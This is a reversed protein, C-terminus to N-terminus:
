RTKMDLLLKKFEPDGRLSELQKDSELIEADKLGRRVAERLDKLAQKKNGLAVRTEALLLVPWPEDMVQRMLDFCSEAKGFHHLQFEQQGNEIGEVKMDDFARAFVAQRAEDKAHAAQNKLGAMAQQIEIRLSNLDSVNGSQYARLKPSIEREIKFQESIQAQEDKLASKLAASQKLASMKASATSTNKLGAFDSTLSRYAEYTASVDNRAAADEAENEMRQFQQDVFKPDPPIVASQMAKLTIWQIADDMVKPPAWQHTGNYQRLRYPLGQKEREHSDTIVEPWNFDRNGVAFYYLLKDSGEGRTNPYGAGHAIVAAIQGSSNLAMAGAVRAGGSFGSVYVRREDLVLHAHTDNWIANVAQSQGDSFNRSNNSGAFIFGYAEALEKYMEVPRRGRGGPDFFYIMPWRKDVTYKSPLYLAYSQTSDASCIVDAIRGPIPLADNKQSQASAALSFFVICVISAALQAVSRIGQQM